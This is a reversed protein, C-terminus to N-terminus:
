GYTQSKEELQHAGPILNAVIVKNLLAANVPVNRNLLHM